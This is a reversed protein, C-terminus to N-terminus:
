NYELSKEIKKINICTYLITFLSLFTPFLITTLTNCLVIFLLISLIQMFISINNKTFYAYINMFWLCPLGYILYDKLLGLFANTSIMFDLTFINKDYFFHVFFVRFIESIGISM